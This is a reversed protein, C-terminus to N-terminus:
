DSLDCKGKIRGIIRNGPLQPIQRMFRRFSVVNSLQFVSKSWKQSLFFPL